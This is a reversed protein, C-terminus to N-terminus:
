AHRLWEMQVNFPGSLSLSTQKERERVRTERWEVGESDVRLGYIYM